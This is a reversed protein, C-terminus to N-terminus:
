ETICYTVSSHICGFQAPIAVEVYNKRKTATDFLPVHILNYDLIYLTKDDALSLMSGEFSKNIDNVYMLYLLPGLISGQSVFLKNIPLVQVISKWLNHGTLSTVPFDIMLLDIYVM